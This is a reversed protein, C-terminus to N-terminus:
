LKCLRMGLKATIMSGEVLGFLRSDMSARRNDGMVFYQDAALTIKTESPGGLNKPDLYPENLIYGDPHEANYIKVIQTSQTSQTDQTGQNSFIDQRSNSIKSIEVTEGPLGVIRKINGKGRSIATLDLVVVDGRQPKGFIYSTPNKVYMGPQVTPEMSEGGVPVLFLRAVFLVVLIIGLGIFIKKKVINASLAPLCGFVFLGSRAAPKRLGGARTEEYSRHFRGVVPEGDKVLHRSWITLESPNLRRGRPGINLQVTM